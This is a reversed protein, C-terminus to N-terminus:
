MFETRCTSAAVGSNAACKRVGDAPTKREAGSSGDASTSVWSELSALPRSVSAYAAAASPSPPSDYTAGRMSLATTPLPCGSNEDARCCSASSYRCCRSSCSPRACCAPAARVPPPAGYEDSKVNASSSFYVASPMAAYLVAPPCVVSDSPMGSSIACFLASTSAYSAACSDLRWFVSPPAGSGIAVSSASSGTTGSTGSSAHRARKAAGSCSSENRPRAPALLATRSADNGLYRAMWM